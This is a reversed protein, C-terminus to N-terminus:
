LKRLDIKINYEWKHRSKGLTRKGEPKGVLIKYASRIKGLCAVHGVWRIRRSKIMRIINLSSYLNHLDEDHLNRLEETIEDRKPGFIRSLMRNETEIQTRGKVHSVL